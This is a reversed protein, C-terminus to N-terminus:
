GVNANCNRCTTEVPEKGVKVVPHAIMVRQAGFGPQPQPQPQNNIMQPQSFGGAGLQNDYPPPATM